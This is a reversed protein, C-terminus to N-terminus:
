PSFREPARWLAGTLPITKKSLSSSYRGGTRSTRGARVPRVHWAAARVTVVFPARPKPGASLARRNVGAPKIDELRHCDQRDHRSSTERRQLRPADDDKRKRQPRTSLKRLFNTSIRSIDTQRTGQARSRFLLVPETISRRGDMRAGFCGLPM